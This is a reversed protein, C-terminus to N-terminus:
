EIIHEVIKIVRITCLMLSIVPSGNSIKNKREHTPYTQPLFNPASVSNENSVSKDSLGINSM